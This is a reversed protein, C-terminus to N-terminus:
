GAYTGRDDEPLATDVKSGSGVNALKDEARTGEFVLKYLVQATAFVTAATTGYNAVGADTLDIPISIGLSAVFSLVTSLLFKAKVDWGRQKILSTIPVVLAGAGLAIWQSVAQSIM